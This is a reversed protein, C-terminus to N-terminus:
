QWVLKKVVDLAGKNKNLTNIEGFLAVDDACM